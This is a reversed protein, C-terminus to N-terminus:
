MYHLVNHPRRIIARTVAQENTSPTKIGAPYLGIVFPSFQKDTYVCVCVCESVRACMKYIRKCGVSGIRRRRRRRHSVTDATAESTYSRRRDVASSLSAPRWSKCAALTYYDYRGGRGGRNRRIRLIYSSYSAEDGCVCSSIYFSTYREMPIYRYIYIYIYIYSDRNEIRLREDGPCHKM